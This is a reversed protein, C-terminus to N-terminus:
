GARYERCDATRRSGSRRSRLSIGALGFGGILMAWTAPEPVRGAFLDVGTLTYPGGSTPTISASFGTWTAESLYLLGGTGVLVNAGFNYNGSRHVVAEAPWNSGLVDIVYSGSGAVRGGDYKLRLIPEFWTWKDVTIPTSFAFNLELTDGVGFTIPSAFTEVFQHGFGVDMNGPVFNMTYTTAAAPSAIIAAVAALAFRMTFVGKIKGAQQGGDDDSDVPQRPGTENRDLGRM